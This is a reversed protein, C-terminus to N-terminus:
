APANTGIGFNEAGTFFTHKAPNNRAEIQVIPTPNDKIFLSMSGATGIDQGVFSVMLKSNAFLNMLYENGSATANQNV